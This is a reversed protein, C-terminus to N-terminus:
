TTVEIAGPGEKSPTMPKRDFIDQLPVHLLEQTPWLPPLKDRQWARHVQELQKVIAPLHRAVDNNEGSDASLDYLLPKRGLLQVLKWDGRRVAWHRGLNWVFAHRDPVSGQGRLVPVLSGGDLTLNKPREAGAIELATPLLDLTSIPADVVRGPAITGPWSAIFPVRNGGEFPTLKGGLLPGNSCSGTYTACGNDSLFLVLTNERVGARRLADEIRGVGDDIAAVMAAYIRTGEDEIEPFREYYRDPAQLPTHPAHHAVYLFFPRDRHREIFAVAERAFADTLYEPEAVPERGRLVPNLADRHPGPREHAADIFHVGPQELPDLYVTDSHLSGFYEDFGRDVPQYGPAPGLHWKGIMGTAYGREKLYQPLLKESLPLGLQERIAREPPSVNYEFGFRQQYRGTMLGARSPGCVAATVYAQTFRIGGAALADLNPTKGGLPCGYACVDGYGLDDALILVVNPPRPASPPEAAAIGGCAALMVPALLALWRRSTM